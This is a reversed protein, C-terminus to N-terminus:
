GQTFFNCKLLVRSVTKYKYPHLNDLALASTPPNNPVAIVPGNFLRSDYIKKAYSSSEKSVRVSSVKTFNVTKWKDM